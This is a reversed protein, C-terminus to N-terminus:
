EPYPVPVRVTFESGLEPKARHQPEPVTLAPRIRIWFVKEQDPDLKNSMFWHQPVPHANMRSNQIRIWLLMFISCIKVFLSPKRLYIKQCRAMKSRKTYKEHLFEFKQSYLRFLIRIRTGCHKPEKDSNLFFSFGSGCQFGVCIWFVAM